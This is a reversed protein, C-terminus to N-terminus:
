CKCTKKVEASHPLSHDVENKLRKVGPVWQFSNLHTEFSFRSTTAFILIWKEAQFRVYPRWGAAM